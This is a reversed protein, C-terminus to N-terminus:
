YFMDPEIKIIVSLLASRTENVALLGTYIEYVCSSMVPGQLLKQLVTARLKVRPIKSHVCSKHHKCEPGFASMATGTVVLIMYIWVINMAKKSLISSTNAKLLASSIFFTISFFTPAKPTSYM